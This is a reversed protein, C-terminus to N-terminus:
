AIKPPREDRDRERKQERPLHPRVPPTPIPEDEPEAVPEDQQKRQHWELRGWPDRQEEDSRDTAPQTIPLPIGELEVEPELLEVGAEDPWFDTEHRIEQGAVYMFACFMAAMWCMAPIRLDRKM